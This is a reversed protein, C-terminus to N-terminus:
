LLYFIGLIITASSSFNTCISLSSSLAISIFPTHHPFACSTVFCMILSFITRGFFCFTLLAFINAMEHHDTVDLCHLFYCRFFIHPWFHKQASNLSLFCRNWWLRNINDHIDFCNIEFNVRACVGGYYRLFSMFAQLIFYCQAFCIRLLRTSLRSHIPWSLASTLTFFIHVQQICVLFNALLCYQLVFPPLLFFLHFLLAHKARQSQHSWVM